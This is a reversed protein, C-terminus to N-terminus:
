PCSTEYLSIKTLRCNPIQRFPFDIFNCEVLKLYVAETGSCYAPWMIFHFLYFLYFLAVNVVAVFKDPQLGTACSLLHENEWCQKSTNSAVRLECIFTLLPTPHYFWPLHYLRTHLVSRRYSLSTCFIRLFHALCAPCSLTFVSTLTFRYSCTSIEHLNHPLATFFRYAAYFM